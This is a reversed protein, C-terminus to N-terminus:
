LLLTGDFFSLVPNAQESLSVLLQLVRLETIFGHVGVIAVHIHLSHELPFHLLDLVSSGDLSLLELLHQLVAPSEHLLRSRAEILGKLLPVSKQGHVRPHAQLVLRGRVLAEKRLLDLAYDDIVGLLPLQHLSNLLLCHQLLLSDQPIRQAAWAESEALGGKALLLEM